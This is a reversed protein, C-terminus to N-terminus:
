LPLTSRPPMEKFYDFIGQMVPDEPGVVIM